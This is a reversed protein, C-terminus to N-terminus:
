CIMKSIVTIAGSFSFSSAKAFWRIACNVARSYFPKVCIDTNHKAKLMCQMYHPPHIDWAAKVNNSWLAWGWKRLLLDIDSCGHNMKERAIPRYSTRGLRPYTLRNLEFLSAATEETVTLSQPYLLSLSLHHWHPSKWSRVSNQVFAQYTWRTRTQTRARTDTKEEWEQEPSDAPLSSSTM